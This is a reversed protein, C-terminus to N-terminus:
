ASQRSGFIATGIRLMTSGEAIAADMDNSMGMSLTDLKFGQAILQEQAHRLAAFMARQETANDTSLPIAMLGRLTLRPCEVIQEALAEIDNLRVGSKSVENAINVQILVQLPPMEDPRQDNLRTAIKDRDLSHMWNASEAILRTKNSQLPGIYHWEIDALSHFHRHKDALEQAYNEGFARQGCDFASQIDDVPKTKSVALLRVEDANRQHRVCSEAIRERVINLQECLEAM